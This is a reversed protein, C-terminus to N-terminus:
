IYYNQPYLEFDEFLQNKTKDSKIGKSVNIKAPIVRLNSFHAIYIPPICLDFGEKVSFIHDLHFDRDRLNSFPIEYFHKHFQENSLADVRSRYIEFDRKQEYNYFYGNEKGTKLKKTKILDSQSPNEFGYRQLNTEKIKEKIEDLEFVNNVGYKELCTQKVKERVFVSSSAFEVGYKELCTRKIKETREEIDKKSKNKWVNRIKERAEESQSGNKVGYKKLCVIETLKNVCEKECCTLNFGQTFSIFKTKSGCIVCRDSLNIKEKDIINYEVAAKFFLTEDNFIAKEMNNLSIYEKYLDRKTFFFAPNKICYQKFVGFSGDKRQCALILKKINNNM